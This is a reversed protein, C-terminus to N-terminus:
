DPRDARLGFERQNEARAIEILRAFDKQTIHLGTEEFAPKKALRDGVSIELTMQEDFVIGEYSDPIHIREPQPNEGCVRALEAKMEPTIREAPLLWPEVDGLVDLYRRRVLSTEPLREKSDWWFRDVARVADRSVQKPVPGLRELERVILEDVQRNYIKESALTKRLDVGELVRVGVANSFPDEPSFGSVREPYVTLISWGYWQALEHWVSVQYSAWQAMALILRDRDIGEMRERSVPEIVFSRRAGEDTLEIRAGRDLHRDLKSVFFATWDVHERVHATDIFGGRCTYILGNHEGKPFAHKRPDDIAATAGDYRHPGLEDVDLMRGVRIWPLPMKGLKVGLSSGFACCWRLKKRVPIDPIPEYTQALGPGAAVGVDRLLAEDGSPGRRGVANWKGDGLCGTLALTLLIVLAALASKVHGIEPSAWVAVALRLERPGKAPKPRTTTSRTDATALTLCARGGTWLTYKARRPAEGPRRCGSPHARKEGAPATGHGDGWALRRAIGGLM